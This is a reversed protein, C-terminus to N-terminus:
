SVNPIILMVILLNCEHSVIGLMKKRKRCLIQAVISCDYTFLDFAITCSLLFHNTCATVTPVQVTVLKTVEWKSFSLCCVATFCSVPHWNLALAGHGVSVSSVLMDAWQCHWVPLSLFACYLYHQSNISPSPHPSSTRPQTPNWIVSLM